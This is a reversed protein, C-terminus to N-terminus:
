SDRQCSRGLGSEKRGDNASGVLQGRGVDHGAPGVARGGQDARDHGADEESEPPRPRRNRRHRPRITTEVSSTHRHRRVPPRWGARDPSRPRTPATPVSGQWRRDSRPSRDRGPWGDPGPCAGIQRDRRAVRLHPDKEHQVGEVEHEDTGEVQEADDEGDVVQVHAPATGPEQVGREASPCQEGAEDRGKEHTPATQGARKRTARETATTARASISATGLTAGAMRRMPVTPSAPETKSVVPRVRRCREAGESAMAPRNEIRSARM